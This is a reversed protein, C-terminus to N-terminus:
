KGIPARVRGQRWSGIASLSAAALFTPVLFLSYPGSFQVFGTETDVRLLYVSVWHVFIWNLWWFAAGFIAGCLLAVLIWKRTFLSGITASAWLALVHAAVLTLGAVATGVTFGVIELIAGVALLLAVTRLKSTM